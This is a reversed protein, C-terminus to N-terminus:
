GNYQGEMLIWERKMQETTSYLETAKFGISRKKLVGVVFVGNRTGLYIGVSLNDLSRVVAGATDNDGFDDPALAIRKPKILGIACLNAGSPGLSMKM